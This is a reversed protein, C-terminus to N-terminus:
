FGGGGMGGGMGGMMQQMQAMMQPNQMMQQMQAAMQPNQMMQQAQAMMQPNNMMQQAQAMMQPNNMMQQAQQMTNGDMGPMGGLGGLGGLGATPAPPAPDSRPAVVPAPAAPLKALEAAFRQKPVAQRRAADEDLVWADEGDPTCDPLWGCAVMAEVGGSCAAVKKTFVANAMKIKRFKQEAPNKEVNETIKVLTQLAIRKAEVPAATIERLAAELEPDAAPAAAAAPAQPVVAAAPAGVDGFPNMASGGGMNSRMSKEMTEIMVRLSQGQPTSLAEEAINVIWSPLGTGDLLFKAVADAYHNCNHSLLNYKESTHELALVSNIYAELEECTKATEGLDLIQSTPVPVSQGPAGICPGSGFFYEKGFVVIGTHPIIDIQKGILAVSMRSAMGQTIDYVYAQVKPM